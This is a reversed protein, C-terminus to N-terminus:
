VSVVEDSENLGDEISKQIYQGYQTKVIFPHKSNVVVKKGDEFTIEFVEDEKDSIIRGTDNEVDGSSMNFSVVPYDVNYEMDKLAISTYSNITGIRVKENEELCEDLIIAKNNGSFSVTSAFQTIKTRLTDILRGENSGNIVMYDYDLEKCLAKAATTKGMGSGGSLLLHTNIKGQNVIGNLANKIGEPLICDSVKAPRYKEAWISHELQKM